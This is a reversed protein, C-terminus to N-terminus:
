KLVKPDEFYEGVSIKEDISEEDLVKKEDYIPNDFEREGEEPEYLTQSLRATGVVEPEDFNLYLRENQKRHRMFLVLVVVLITIAILVILIIIIPVIITAPSSGSSESSTPSDCSEDQYSQITVKCSPNLTVVADGLSVSQGQEVWEEIASLIDRSRSMSSRLLLARFTLSNPDEYCQLVANSVDSAQFNCNLSCFDNVHAVLKTLIQSVKVKEEDRQIYYYVM